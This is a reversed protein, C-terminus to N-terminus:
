AASLTFTMTMTYTGTAYTWLNLFRFTVTGSHVGSNVWSGVTSSATASLTGDVFGTGTTTWTIHGAPITDLGSRLDDSAQVTLAVAGGLTARAKATITIPGPSAVIQPVTDPDSDPFTIASSSLSLRAIGTLSANLTATETQAAAWTPCAALLAILIIVLRM